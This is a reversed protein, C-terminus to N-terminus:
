AVASEAKIGHLAVATLHEILQARSPRKRGQPVFLPELVSISAVMGIVMRISLELNKQPPWGRRRNHETSLEVVDSFAQNLVAQAESSADSDLLTQMSALALVGNRHDRFSDYVIEVVTRMLREEDWLEDAQAELSQKFTTVLDIFPQLQAARFLEAKSTFHRFMVSRAVGAEAAIDDTTTHAYGKRGFVDTAAELILRQVEATSRRTRTTSAM